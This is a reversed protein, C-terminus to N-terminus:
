DNLSRYWAAKMEWPMYPASNEVWDLYHTKGNFGGETWSDVNRSMRGGTQRSEIIRHDWLWDGNEIRRWARDDNKKPPRWSYHTSVKPENCCPKNVTRHKICVHKTTSPM